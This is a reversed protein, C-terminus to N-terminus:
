YDSAFNRIVKYKVQVNNADVIEIIAGKYAAVNGETLDIQFERNFSQRALGDTFESYIFKLVDGSKGAYELTQQFSNERFIFTEGVEIDSENLNEICHGSSGSVTQCLEYKGKKTRELSVSLTQEKRKSSNNIYTPWYYENKLKLKCIPEGAKYLGTWGWTTESYTKRPTICDRWEGVQQVLMRDGLYVESEIGIEPKNYVVEEYLTRDQALLASPFSFGVLLCFLKKM